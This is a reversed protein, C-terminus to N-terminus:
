RHHGISPPMSLQGVARGHTPPKTGHRRRPQRHSATATDGAGTGPQTVLDMQPAVGMHNSGARPGLQALLAAAAPPAAPIDVSEAQGQLTDLCTSMTVLAATIDGLM